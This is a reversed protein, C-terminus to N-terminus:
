KVGGSPDTADLPVIFIEVRRNAPNGRQGPQNPEVPRWQGFGMVALREQPMSKALVNMVAIARHASLHWNTPHKARTEPRGIPMDDTHGVILVQLEGAREPSCIEALAALAPEAASSVQDSGLTFTLDSKLRVLGKAPDYSLLEPNESALQVLAARTQASLVGSQGAREALAEFEAVLEDFKAKQIESETQIQDLREQESRLERALSDARGREAQLDTQLAEIRERSQQQHAKLRADPSCGTFVLSVTALAFVLFLTALGTKVLRM